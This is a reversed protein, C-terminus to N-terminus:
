RRSWSTEQVFTKFGNATATLTFTGPQLYQFDYDGAQNTKTVTKVGTANNVLTVEAGPLIAGSSDTVTGVINSTYLQGFAPSLFLTPVVIMMLALLRSLKGFAGPAGSAKPGFILSM